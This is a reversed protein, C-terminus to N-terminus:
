PRTRPSVASAVLGPRGRLRSVQSQRMGQTAYSASLHGLENNPWKPTDRARSDSLDARLGM